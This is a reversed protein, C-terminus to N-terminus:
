LGLDPEVVVLGARELITVPLDLVGVDGAHDLVVVDGHLRRRPARPTGKDGSAQGTLVGAARERRGDGFLQNGHGALARLV